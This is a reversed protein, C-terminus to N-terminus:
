ACCVAPQFTRRASDASSCPPAPASRPALWCRLARWCRLSPSLRGPSCSSRHSPEPTAAPSHHRLPATSTVAGPCREGPPEPPVCNSNLFAVFETHVLRLATNRAPAPGRNVQHRLLRAGFAARVGETAQPDHSGDDVVIVPHEGGLATLCRDLERARERVPVVVTVDLQAPAPPPRPHAMGAYTLRRALVAAATSRVPRIAARGVGQSREPQVADPSRALWRVVDYAVRRTDSDLEIGIGEPMGADERIGFEEPTM